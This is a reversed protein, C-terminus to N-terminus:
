IEDRDALSKKTNGKTKTNKEKALRKVANEYTETIRDTSMVLKDLDVADKVSPLLTYKNNNLYNTRDDLLNEIAKLHRKAPTSCLVEYYAGLDDVLKKNEKYYNPNKLFSDFVITTKSNEGDMLLNYYKSEDDFIMAICWMITSSRSKNKSNDKKFFSLFDKTKLEPHCEWFNDDVDYKKIM